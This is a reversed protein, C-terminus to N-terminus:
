LLRWKESLLDMTSPSWDLYFSGRRQLICTGEETLGPSLRLYWNKRWSRHSVRGGQKLHALAESFSYEEEKM